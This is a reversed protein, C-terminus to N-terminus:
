TLIGVGVVAFVLFAAAALASAAAQRARQRGAFRAATLGAYIGWAVASWTEHATGTWPQGLRVQLWIMGSIVGLSLLPFGVALCSRNVRDLAELTPLRLGRSLPHKGKLRRHEILFFCGAMGSLGLLGLGASSLLVHAHPLSGSGLESVIGQPSQTAGYFAALFSVPGALTVLSTIGIRWILLLLLMNGMWATLSVAAPLNTIPPAPDIRHLAAFAAAHVLAGLALGWVAGRSMRPAPLAMGLLAGVGAALYIAAAIQHLEIM